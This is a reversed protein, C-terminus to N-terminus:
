NTEKIDKDWLWAAKFSVGDHFSLFDRNATLLGGKLVATRLVGIIATVSEFNQNTKTLAAQDVNYNM